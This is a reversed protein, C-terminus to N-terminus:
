RAAAGEARRDGARQAILDAAIKTPDADGDAVILLESPGAVMDLGVRGFLLRKAASVYRNGPGVVVDCRPVGGVGFALAAM